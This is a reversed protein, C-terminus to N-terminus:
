NKEMLVAAIVKGVEKPNKEVMANIEEQIRIAAKEDESLAPEKIAVKDLDSLAEERQLQKLLNEEEIRALRRNRLWSYVARYVFYLFILAISSTVVIIVILRTRQARFYAEDEAKHEAQRDFSINEVVVADGRKGDYNISGKVTEEFKRIQEETLPIYTRQISNNTIILDGNEDYDKVWVGDVTLSVSKKEIEIADNTQQTIKEGNVFNDIEEDKNYINKGEISEKYGPPLNPEQGPPGEPIFGFGEFNETLKKRSVRVSDRIVSDDYAINPTREKIVVPLIEKQNVQTKDFNFELDVAVRYRNKALVGQLSEEIRKVVKRVEQDRVKNQEVAQKIQDEYDEGPFLNIQNGTHDTIVINDKSLGDIGTALINEIGRIITKNTLNEQYGEAPTISLAAQVDIQRETYLSKEPVSISVEADDIWKLTELHRQIEGEIARRKKVDRDFETTTWSEMDFLEWGKIDDPLLNNQALEMRVRTGTAEDELVIFKDELTEYPINLRDLESTITAIEKLSLAKRFLFVQEVQAPASISIYAAILVLLPITTFLIKRVTSLKKFADTFSDWIKIIRELM